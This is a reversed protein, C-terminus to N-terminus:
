GFFPILEQEIKKRKDPINRGNELDLNELYQLAAEKFTEPHM